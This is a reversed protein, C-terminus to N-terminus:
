SVLDGRPRRLLSGLWALALLVLAGTTAFALGAGMGGGLGGWDEPPSDDTSVPDAKDIATLYRPLAMPLRGRLLDTDAFVTSAGRDDTTAQAKDDVILYHGDRGLGTMVAELADSELYYGGDPTATWVIVYVQPDSAAALGAVRRRQARSLRDRSEPALYVNSRRLGTIAAQVRDSGAADPVERPPPASGLAYTLAVVTVAAAVLGALVAATVSRRFSM